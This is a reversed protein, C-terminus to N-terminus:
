VVVNTDPFDEGSVVIGPSLKRALPAVVLRHPYVVM